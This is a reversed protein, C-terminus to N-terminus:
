TVPNGTMEIIGINGDHYGIYLHNGYSSVIIHTETNSRKIGTGFFVIGGIIISFSFTKETIISNNGKITTLIYAINNYVSGQSAIAEMTINYKEIQSIASDNQAMLAGLGGAVPALDASTWVTGASKANVAKYLGDTRGSINTLILYVYQGATVGVPCTNGRIVPGISKELPTIYDEITYTGDLNYPINDGALMVNGTHGNVSTVPITIIVNGTQGNVSTVPFPPLNGSTYVEQITFNKDDVNKTIYYFKEGTFKLGAHKEAIRRYVSWDPDLARDPFVVDKETYLTVIGSMGNVSIVTGNRLQEILWDLNLEHLNSYPFQPFLAM